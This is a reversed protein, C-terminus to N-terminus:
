VPRSRMWRTNLAPLERLLDENGPTLERRRTAALFRKAVAGIVTTLFGNGVVLVVIAIVRRADTTPSTDENGVTTM